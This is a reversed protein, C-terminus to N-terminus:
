KLGYFSKHLHCVHNPFQPHIFGPPQHMYVEEQLHGHLFANKVDLQKIDWGYFFALSLVIRITSLKVM